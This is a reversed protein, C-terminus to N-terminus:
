RVRGILGYRRGFVLTLQADKMLQKGAFGLDINTVHIDRTKGKAGTRRVFMKSPDSSNDIASKKKITAKKKGVHEDNVDILDNETYNTKRRKDKSESIGTKLKRNLAKFDSSLNIPNKLQSHKGSFTKTEDGDEGFKLSVVKTCIEEIEEDTGVDSAQLFAGVLDYFPGDTKEYTGLM